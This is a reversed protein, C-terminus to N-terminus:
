TNNQTAQYGIVTKNGMYLSMRGTNFRRYVSGLGPVTVGLVPLSILLLHQRKSPMSPSVQKDPAAITVTLVEADQHSRCGKDERVREEGEPSYLQWILQEWAAKNVIQKVTGSISRYV